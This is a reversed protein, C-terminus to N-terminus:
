NNLFYVIIIIGIIVIWIFKEKKERKKKEKKSIIEYTNVLDLYCNEDIEKLYFLFTNIDSGFDTPGFKTNYMATSQNLKEIEEPSSPPYKKSVGINFTYAGPSVSNKIELYTIITFCALIKDRPSQVTTIKKVLEEITENGKIGITKNEEM